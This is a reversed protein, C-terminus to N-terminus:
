QKINFVTWEGIKTQQSPTAELSQIPNIWQRPPTEMRSVFLQLDTAFRWSTGLGPKVVSSLLISPRQDEPGNLQVAVTTLLVAVNLDQALVRLQRSTHMITAPGAGDNAWLLNTLIASLPDIVVLTPLSNTCPTLEGHLSQITTLLSNIDPCTYITIRDLVHRLRTEIDPSDQDADM